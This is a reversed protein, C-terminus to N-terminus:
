GTAAATLQLRDFVDRRRSRSVPVANDRVFLQRPNWRSIHRLNVAFGRHTQVFQTEPLETMLDRLAARLLVRQGNRLHLQVYVHEAQLYLIDEVPIRRTDAGDRLMLMSRESATCTAMEITTYLSERRIPKPLYGAPSTQRAMALFHPDLQSTLYIFPVPRPHRRIYRALDIGTGAGNLRIDLLVLDPSERDYLTTAEEYTTAQGVVQYGYALLYRAITDAILIEDEVIMVRISIM